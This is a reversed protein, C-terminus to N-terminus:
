YLPPAPSRSHTDLKDHHCHKWQGICEGAIISMARLWYLPPPLTFPCLPVAVIEWMVPGCLPAPFGVFPVWWARIREARIQVDPPRSAKRDTRGTPGCDTAAGYGGGDQEARPDRGQRCRGTAARRSPRWATAATSRGSRRSRASPGDDAGGGRAAC